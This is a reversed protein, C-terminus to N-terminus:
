FKIDLIVVNGEKAILRVCNDISTWKGSLGATRPPSPGTRLDTCDITFICHNKPMKPNMQIVCVDKTNELIITPWKFVWSTLM